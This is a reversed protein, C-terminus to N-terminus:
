DGTWFRSQLANDSLLFAPHAHLCSQPAIEIKYTLGILTKLHFFDGLMM